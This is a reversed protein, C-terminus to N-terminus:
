LLFIHPHLSLITEQPHLLMDLNIPFGKEWYFLPSMQDSRIAMIVGDLNSVSFKDLFDQVMVPLLERQTNGNHVITPLTSADEILFFKLLRDRPTLSCTHQINEIYAPIRECHHSFGKLLTKKYADVSMSWPLPQVANKGENSFDKQANKVFDKILKQGSIGKEQFLTGDLECSNDFQFHEIFMTINDYHLYADPREYTQIPEHLLTIVMNTLETRPGLLQLPLLCGRELHRAFVEEVERKERRSPYSSTTLRRKHKMRM